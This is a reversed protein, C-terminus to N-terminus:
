WAAQGCAERSTENVVVVAVVSHLPHPVTLSPLIEAYCSTTHVLHKKVRRLQNTAHGAKTYNNNNNNYGPGMAAALKKGRAQPHSTSQDVM